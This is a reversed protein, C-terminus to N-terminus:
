EEEKLLCNVYTTLQQQTVYKIKVKPKNSVILFFQTEDDYTIVLRPKNAAKKFIMKLNEFLHKFFLLISKFILKIKKM